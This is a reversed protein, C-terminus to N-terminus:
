GSRAGEIFSTMKQLDKIGHGAEVGGSVDVGFPHLQRIAQRVNEATLGGALVLKTDGRAAISEAQSWDFTRGTGGAAKSDFSDLLIMEASRYTEALEELSRQRGPEGVRLAKLYPLGFSECFTASEGGHFQLYDVLGTEVAANVQAAAPNVFLAVVKIRGRVGAVVTAMNEVAVARPSSAYIVLGVANAGLDAAARADQPRTIGCIKIWVSAM